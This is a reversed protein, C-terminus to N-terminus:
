INIIKNTTNMKYFFKHRFTYLKFHYNILIYIYAFIILLCYIIYPLPLPFHSQLTSGTVSRGSHSALFGVTAVVCVCVEHRFVERWYM